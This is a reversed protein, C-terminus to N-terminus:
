TRPEPMKAPVSRSCHIISVSWVRPPTAIPMTAEILMRAEEGILVSDIIEIRQAVHHGQEAAVFHVAREDTEVSFERLSQGAVGEDAPLPRTEIGRSSNPRAMYRGGLAAPM